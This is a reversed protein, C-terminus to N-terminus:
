EKNRAFNYPAGSAIVNAQRVLFSLSYKDTVSLKGGILRLRRGNGGAAPAPGRYPASLSLGADSGRNGFGLRDFGAM